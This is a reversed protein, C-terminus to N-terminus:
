IQQYTELRGVVGANQESIYEYITFVLFTLLHSFLNHFMARYLPMYIQNFKTFNHVYNIWTQRNKKKIDQYDKKLKLFNISLTNKYIVKGM